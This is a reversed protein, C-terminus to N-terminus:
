HITMWHMKMNSCLQDDHKGPGPGIEVVSCGAVIGSARIFDKTLKPNILFNQALRKSSRVKYLKLLDTVSLLPPLRQPKYIEVEDPPKDRRILQDNVQLSSHVANASFSRCRILHQRLLLQKVLCRM